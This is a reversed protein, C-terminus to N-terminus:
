PLFVGTRSGQKVVVGDQGLKIKQWDTIKELTSLVSVEYTLDALENAQVPTFRYDETAAAIAMDQVTQWLEGTGIIQGICGRLEGNKTLTVFAGESWTLREDTIKFKPIQKTKVYSTITEKAINLLINKQQPTLLKEKASTKPNSWAL